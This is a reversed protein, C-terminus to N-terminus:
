EIWRDGTGQLIFGAWFFPDQWPKQFDIRQYNKVHLKALRLAETPTKHNGLLMKYFYGMLEATADDQVAWLSAIVRKSGAEFFARNLGLLGEGNINKGVATECGSLVVLEAAIKLSSIETALLLNEDDKINSFVLGGLSPIKSNSIGHMAFHLIQFDRLPQSLFASKNALERTLTVVNDKSAKLISKAEISTYPLEKLEYGSRLSALAKSPNKNSMAPDAVLLLSRDQSNKKLKRTLQNYVLISPAYSINTNLILPWGSGPIKLISFPLYNLAGDSVITIDTYKKWFSENNDILTTSLRTIAQDLNQRRQQLEGNPMKAMQTLVSRVQENITHQAPLRYRSINDRSILWYFSFNKNIDYYVMASTSPMTTRLQQIANNISTQTVGTVGPRSKNIIAELQQLRSATNKIAVKEKKRGQGTKQQYYNVALSDLSDQLAARQQKQELTIQSNRALKSIEENLTRSRYLEAIKLSLLSNKSDSSLLEIHLESIQQQLSLFGRRFDKRSIAKRADEIEFHLKSLVEIARKKNNQLGLLKAQHFTTNIRDLVDQSQQSLSIAKQIFDTAEQKRGNYFAILAAQGYLRGSRISDETKAYQEFAKAQYELAESYKLKQSIGALAVTQELAVTALESYTHGLNAPNDAKLDNVLTQQFFQDAKQYEGTSFHARGLLFGVDISDGTLNYQEYLHKAKTLSDIAHEFMGFEQLIIGKAHYSRALYFRISHESQGKKSALISQNIHYLAQDIDGFQSYIRSLKTNADMEFNVMEYQKSYSLAQQYYTFAKETNDSQFNSWGLNLLSTVMNFVDGESEFITLSKKFHNTALNSFGLKDQINGLRNLTKGALQNDEGKNILEIVRNLYKKSVEWQGELYHLSGLSYYAHIKYIHSPESSLLRMLISKQEKYNSLSHAVQSALFLSQYKLSSFSNKEALRAALLFDEHISRLKKEDEAMSSWNQVASTLISQIKIEEADNEVDLFKFSIQFSGENDIAKVPLIQIRCESCQKASVLKNLFWIDRDPINTTSIVKGLRNSM